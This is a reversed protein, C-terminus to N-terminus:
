FFELKARFFELEAIRIIIIIYNNNFYNESVSRCISLYYNVPRSMCSTRVNRRHLGAAVQRQYFVCSPPAVVPWNLVRVHRSYLISRLHPPAIL